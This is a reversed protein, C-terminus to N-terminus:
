TTTSPTGPIPVSPQDFTHVIKKVARIVWEVPSLDQQPDQTRPGRTGRPGAFAATTLVVALTVALSLSKTRM